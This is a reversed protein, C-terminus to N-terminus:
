AESNVRRPHPRLGDRAVVQNFCIHGLRQEFVLIALKPGCRSPNLLKAKTSFWFM